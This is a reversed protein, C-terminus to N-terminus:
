TIKKDNLCSNIYNGPTGTFNDNFIKYNIYDILKIIMKEYINDMIQNIIGETDLDNKTNILNKIKIKIDDKGTIYNSNNKKLCTDSYNFENNVDNIINYNFSFVISDFGFKIEQNLCGKFNFYLLNNTRNLTNLSNNLLDNISNLDFIQNLSNPDM